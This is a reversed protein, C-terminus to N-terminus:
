KRRADILSQFFQQTESSVSLIRYAEVCAFGKIQADYTNFFRHVSDRWCSDHYGTNEWTGNLEDHRLPNLIPTCEGECVFVGVYNHPAWLVLTFSHYIGNATKSNRRFKMVMARDSKNRIDQKEFIECITWEFMDRFTYFQDMYSM